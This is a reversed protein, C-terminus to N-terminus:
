LIFLRATRGIIESAAVGSSRKNVTGQEHCIVRAARRRIRDIYFNCYRREGCFRVARPARYFNKDALLRFTEAPFGEDADVRAAETGCFEAAEDLEFFLRELNM